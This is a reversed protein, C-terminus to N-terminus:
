NHNTIACRDGGHFVAIYCAVWFVSNTGLIAVRDGPNVGLRQLEAAITAVQGRLADYTVQSRDTILAIQNKSGNELLYQATNM